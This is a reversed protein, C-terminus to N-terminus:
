PRRNEVVWLLAMALLGLSGLLLLVAATKIRSVTQPTQRTLWTDKM